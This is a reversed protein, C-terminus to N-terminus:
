RPRILGPRGSRMLLQFVQEWRYTAAYDGDAESIVMRVLAQSPAQEGHSVELEAALKRPDISNSM